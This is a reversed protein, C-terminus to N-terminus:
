GEGLEPPKRTRAPGSPTAAPATAGGGALADIKGEMRFLAAEVRGLRASVDELEQRSPMNAAALAREMVGRFAEQASASANTAGGILRAVDDSKFAQGGMSNTMKEWEGLMSRFFATPDPPTSSM